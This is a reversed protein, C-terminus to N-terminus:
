PTQERLWLSAHSPQITSGVVALVDDSLTTIDVENRLRRALDAAITNLSNFLGSLLMIWGVIHGRRAVIIGGVVAFSTALVASGTADPGDLTGHARLTFYLGGISIGVASAAIAVGVRTMARRTTM